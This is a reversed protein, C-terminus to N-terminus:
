ALLEKRNIMALIESATEEIAKYTVDVVPCRLRRFVQEAHALEESIKAKDAYGSEPPLGLSALRNTRIGTLLDPSVTLGIVKNPPLEFLERPPQAQPVLPVNCAKIGQNQALYMCTPTKSTRSVGVLVLDALVLGQPSKGDDYKIAFDIADMRRFYDEDKAHVAGPEHRPEVGLLKGVCTISPGLLDLCPIQAKTAEAELTLRLEETVLTYAFVCPSQAALKVMNVLQQASILRPLRVIRIPLGIFQSVIAKAVMEATQGSADSLSYVILPNDHTITSGFM